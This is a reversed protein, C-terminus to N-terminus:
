IPKVAKNGQHFVIRCNDPKKWKAWKQPPCFYLGDDSGWVKEGKGLHRALWAQDSGTNKMRAKIADDDNFETVVSPRCGATILFMSGNYPRKGTGRAIVLDDDRDFFPDLKDFVNFDLDMSVFRKAGFMKEAKPNFMQLRIMNSYRGKKKNWEKLKKGEIEPPMPIIEIRKDLGEPLHTVCALTHPMDLNKDVLDAWRNVHEPKFEFRPNERRYFWTMVKLM